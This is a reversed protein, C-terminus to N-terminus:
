RRQHRHRVVKSVAAECILDGDQLVVEPAFTRYRGRRHALVFRYTGNVRTMGEAKTIWSGARRGKTKKRHVEVPVRSSCEEVNPAIVAGHLVLRRHRRKPKLLKAPVTTHGVNITVRREEETPDGGGGGSTVTSTVSASNNTQNADGTQSEVEAANTISGDAAGVTVVITVVIEQEDIMNGLQCVVPDEGTCTGQTATASVLSVGAPLDDTMVNGTATAPGHNKVTITYTLTGGAAVPEPSATKTV